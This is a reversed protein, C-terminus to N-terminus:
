YVCVSKGDASCVCRSGKVPEIRVVWARSTEDFLPFQGHIAIVANDKILGSASINGNGFIGRCTLFAFGRNFGNSSCECDRCQHHAYAWNGFGRPLWCIVLILVIAIVKYCNSLTRLHTCLISIGDCSFGNCNADISFSQSIIGNSQAIVRMNSFAGYLRNGNTWTGFRRTRLRRGNTVISIGCAM